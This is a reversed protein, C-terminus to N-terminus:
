TQQRQRQAVTGSTNAGRIPSSGIVRQNVALHEVSQAISSENEISPDSLIGVL